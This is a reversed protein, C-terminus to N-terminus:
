QNPMPVIEVVNGAPDRAFILSGRTRYDLGEAKVRAFVGDIDRTYIAVVPYESKPRRPEGLPEFLAVFMGDGFDMIVEDYTETKYRRGPSIGFINVFFAEAAERDDVILKAGAVRAVTGPREVVEITNGGPDRAIGIRAGSSPGSLIRFPYAADAFRTVMPDLDPVYLVTVPYASKEVTDGATYSLLGVRGGQGFGMFPEIVRGEDVYRGVETMGLLDVYFPTTTEVDGITFKTTRVEHPAPTQGEGAQTRAADSSLLVAAVVCVIAAQTQQRNM